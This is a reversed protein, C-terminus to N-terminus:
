RVLGLVGIVAAVVVGLGTLVLGVVGAGRAWRQAQDARTVVTAASDRRAKELDEVRKVLEAHRADSQDLRQLVLSLDGQIKTMGVELSRQLNALLLEVNPPSSVQPSEM